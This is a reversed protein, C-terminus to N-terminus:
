FSITASLGARLGAFKKNFDEAEDEQFENEIPDTSGGNGDDKPEFTYKTFATMRYRAFIGMSFSPGFNRALSAGAHLGVGEVKLSGEKYPTEVQNNVLYFNDEEAIERSLNSMSYGVNAGFSSRKSIMFRKELGADLNIEMWKGKLQNSITNGQQDYTTNSHFIPSTAEMSNYTGTGYIYLETPLFDLLTSTNYSLQVGLLTGGMLGIGIGLDNKQVALMGEDLRRGSTQYFSSSPVAGGAETVNIKNDVVKKARIVGRRVSEIQGDNNQVDEFVFYRDSRKVGEKKGIEIRIPKIESLRAKVQFDDVSREFKKISNEFMNFALDKLLQSEPKQPTNGLLKSADANSQTGDGSVNQVSVLTMGFTTTNFKALRGALESSPTDDYSLLDSYLVAKISDNFDIKYLYAKASSQFGNETRAVPKYETKTKEAYAKASADLEDYYEKMTTISSVGLVMVYMKSLLSRGADMLAENGRKSASAAMADAKDANYLGRARIKDMNIVGQSNLMFVDSIIQNPIGKSQLDKLIVMGISDKAESDGSDKSKKKGFLNGVAGLGLADAAASATSSELKASSQFDISKLNNNDFKDIVLATDKAAGLLMSYRNSSGVNTMLVTLAPRDYDSKVQKVKSASEQVDQSILNFPIFFLFLRLAWNALIFTSKTKM